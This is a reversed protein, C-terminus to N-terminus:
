EPEMCMLRDELLGYLLLGCGEPTAPCLGIEALLTYMGWGLSGLGPVWVVCHVVFLNGTIIADSM